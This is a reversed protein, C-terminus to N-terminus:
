NFYNSMVRRSLGRRKIAKRIEHGTKYLPNPTNSEQENMYDNWILQSLIRSAAPRFECPFYQGTCYELKDNKLTLRGNSNELNYILKDNLNDVRSIALSLLENFDHLDNTIERSEKRYIKVDGYNIFELGPRQNAFDRLLAIANLKNKTENIM